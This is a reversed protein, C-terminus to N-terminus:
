HEAEKGKNLHPLILEGPSISFGCSILGDSLSRDRVAGALGV